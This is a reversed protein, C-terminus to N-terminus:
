YGAALSQSEQLHMFLHPIQQEAYTKLQLNNGVGHTNEHMIIANYHDNVQSHIYLSDFSRGKLNKLENMLTVHRPHLTDPTPIGLNAAIGELEALSASHETVMKQGFAKIADTESSDAALQGLAIEAANTLTANYVFGIDQPDIIQGAENDKSCSFLSISAASVFFLFWNKM